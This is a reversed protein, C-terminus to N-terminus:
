VTVIFIIIHSIFIVDTASNVWVSWRCFPWAVIKAITKMFNPFICDINLLSTKKKESCPFLIFSETVHLRKICCILKWQQKWKKFIIMSNFLSTEMKWSTIFLTYQPKIYTINKLVSLFLCFNHTLHQFILVKNYTTPFHSILFISSFPSGKLSICLFESNVHLSM